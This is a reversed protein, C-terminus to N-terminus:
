IQDEFDLYLVQSCQSHFKKRGLWITNQMNKGQRRLNGRISGRSLFSVLIEKCPFSLETSLGKRTVRWDTVLSSCNLHSIRHCVLSSVGRRWEMPIFSFCVYSYPVPPSSLEEQHYLKLLCYIVLEALLLGPPSSHQLM